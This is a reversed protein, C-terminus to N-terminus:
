VDLPAPPADDPPFSVNAYVDALALRCNISAFDITSELSNAAAYRWEDSGDDTRTFREIRPEDQAVLVYERLSEVSRYHDFKKVRDYRETSPSLVEVILTPNLLTDFHGDEVLRTEGCVVITDPYTYLGTRPIFVRLDNSYARCRSRRLQVYFEGSINNNVLTHPESAGSMLFMEGAYYEHKFESAREIELYEEPTLFTKPQSSM